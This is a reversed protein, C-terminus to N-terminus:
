RGARGHIAVACTHGTRGPRQPATDRLRATRDEFEVTWYEGESRFVADQPLRPSPGAAFRDGGTERRPTRQEARPPPGRTPHDPRGTMARTTHFQRSCTHGRSNALSPASSVNRQVGTVGARVGTTVSM